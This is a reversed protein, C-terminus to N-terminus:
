RQPALERSRLWDTLRDQWSTGAVTQSRGIGFGHKGKEYIHMEAPVKAKRLAMYFNISNEPMVGKDDDAHVLFTPPTDSTVQTENSLNEVLAPAPNTGILNNKSGIHPFDKFSVVPYVLVMFDPRCSIKDIPDASAKNGRDYHTGATSALHGGASFGMIGIRNPDINWDKAKSRVMRIARQADQMPVPHMYGKKPLRYKLMFCAVGISNLYKGVAHGEHNTALGGYGGGPCVVIATIPTTQQEPLFVTLTPIDVDNTGKTGPAGNPWLLEIKEGDALTISSLSLFLAVALIRVM